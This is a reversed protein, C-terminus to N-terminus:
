AVERELAAAPELLAGRAASQGGIAERHEHWFQEIDDLIADISRRAKWGTQSELKRTDSIYLPQDGPRVEMSDLHLPM